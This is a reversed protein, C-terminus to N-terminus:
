FNSATNLRGAPNHYQDLTSKFPSRNDVSSKKEHGAGGGGMLIDNEESANRNKGWIRWAVMALGGLILAGGVGVVVGIITKKNTPSLGPPGTSDNSTSVVGTPTSTATTLVTSAQSFVKTGSTTM